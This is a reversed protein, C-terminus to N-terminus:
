HQNWIAAIRRRFYTQKTQTGNRWRKLMEKWQRQWISDGSPFNGDCGFVAEVGGHPTPFTRKFDALYYHALYRNAILVEFESNFSLFAQLLYQESWFRLEDMVWHRPYDFPFFIDHVHVIVGPKLRPLVELFFYNVDGGIKVTHSSDIFLIDGADYSRSSDM